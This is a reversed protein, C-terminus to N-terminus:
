SSGSRKSREADTYEGPLFKALQELMGSLMDDDPVEGNPTLHDVVEPLGDALEERAQEVSMGTQDAIQRLEEPGVARELEDANLAQNPGTGVWSDAKPGLGAGRFRDLMGGLGGQRELMGLVIGLMPGGLLRAVMGGGSRGLFMRLRTGIFGM